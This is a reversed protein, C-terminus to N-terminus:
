INWFNLVFNFKKMATDMKLQYNKTWNQTCFSLSLNLIFSCDKSNKIFLLKQQEFHLLYKSYYLFYLIFWNTRITHVDSTISWVFEVGPYIKRRGFYSWLTYLSIEENLKGKKGKLFVCLIIGLENFVTNHFIKFPTDRLVVISANLGKVVVLDCIVVLLELPPM